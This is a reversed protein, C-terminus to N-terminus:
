RIMERVERESVRVGREDTVAIFRVSEEDSVLVCDEVFDPFASESEVFL